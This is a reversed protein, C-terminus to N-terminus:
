KVRIYVEETISADDWSDKMGRWKHVAKYKDPGLIDMEIISVVHDQIPAYRENIVKTRTVFQGVDRVIGGDSYMHSWILKQKGWNYGLIGQGYFKIEGQIKWYAKHEYGTGATSKVEWILISDKGMEAEWTGLYYKM